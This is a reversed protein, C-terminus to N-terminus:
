LSRTEVSCRLLSELAFRGAETDVAVVSGTFHDSLKGSVIGVDGPSNMHGVAFGVPKPEDGRHVYRLRLIKRQHTAVRRDLPMSRSDSTM